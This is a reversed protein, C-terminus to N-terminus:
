GRVRVSVSVRVSVLVDELVQLVKEAGGDRGLLELLELVAGLGLGAGVGLALGLM